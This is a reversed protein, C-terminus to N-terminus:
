VGTSGFGKEGRETDSLSDTLKFDAVTVPSVIIQAIREGNNVVFASAGLNILIIKLEGRYDSDITGPTNLVTIGNKAALGSRPRVQIEYGQPIEFFLGTPIMVFSGPAITVPETLFACVDAGAAGETKYSPVVAGKQAVMKVEIKNM